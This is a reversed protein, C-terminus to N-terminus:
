IFWRNPYSRLLSRSRTRVDSFRSWLPFSQETKMITSTTVKVNLEPSRIQKTIKIIIFDKVGQVASHEKIIVKRGEKRPKLVRTLILSVLIDPRFLFCTIAERLQKYNPWLLCTLAQLEVQQVQQTFVSSKSLVISKTNLSIPITWTHPLIKRRTVHKDWM